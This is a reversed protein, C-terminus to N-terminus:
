NFQSSLQTPTSSMGYKQGLDMNQNQPRLAQLSQMSSQHQGMDPQNYQGTANQLWPQLPPDPQRSSMQPLMPDMMAMQEPMGRNSPTSMQPMPPQSANGGDMFRSTANQSQALMQAAM